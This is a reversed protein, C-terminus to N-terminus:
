SPAGSSPCATALRNKGLMAVGRLAGGGAAGIPLSGGARVRGAGSAGTWGTCGAACAVGANTRAENRGDAVDVGVIRDDSNISGASKKRRESVWRGVERPVLRFFPPPEARGALCRDFSASRLARWRALGSFWAFYLAYWRSRMLRRRASRACSRRAVTTAASYPPADIQHHVCRSMSVRKTSRCFPRRAAFPARWVMTCGYRAGSHDGGRTVWPRHARTPLTPSFGTQTALACQSGQPHCAV